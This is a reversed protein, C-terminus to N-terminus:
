KYDFIDKPEFRHISKRKVIRWGYVLIKDISTEDSAYPKLRNIKITNAIKLSRFPKLANKLIKKRMNPPPYIKLISSKESGIALLNNTDGDGGFQKMKFVRQLHKKRGALIFYCSANYENAILELRVIDKIINALNFKKGSCWKTELALEISTKQTQKNKEGVVVFDIRRKDGSGTKLQEMIPHPYETRLNNSYRERLYQGIPYAMYAECFLEYRKCLAEFNLWYELAETISLPHKM